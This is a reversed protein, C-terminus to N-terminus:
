FSFGGISSLFESFLLSFGGISSLFESFLLSFGGISSLFESILLFFKGILLKSGPFVARVRILVARLLRFTVRIIVENKILGLTNM